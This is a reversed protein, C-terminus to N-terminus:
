SFFLVEGEGVGGVSGVREVVEQRREDGREHCIMGSGSAGKEGGKETDVKTKIGGPARATAEQGANYWGDRSREGESLKIGGNRQGEGAGAEAEEYDSIVRPTM